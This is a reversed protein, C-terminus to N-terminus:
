KGSSPRRGTKKLMGHLARMADDPSEYPGYTRGRRIDDLGEAIEREVASVPPPVVRGREVRVYPV